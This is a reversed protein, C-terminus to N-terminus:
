RPQSSLLNATPKVHHANTLAISVIKNEIAFYLSRFSALDINKKLTSAATDADSKM